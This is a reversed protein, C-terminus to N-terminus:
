TRATNYKGYSFLNYYCKIIKKNYNFLNVRLTNLIIMCTVFNILPDYIKKQTIDYLLKASIFKNRFSIILQHMDLDKTQVLDYISVPSKPYFIISPGFIFSMNLHKAIKHSFCLFSFLDEFSKKLNLYEDDFLPLPYLLVPQTSGFIQKMNVITYEYNTVVDCDAMKLPVLSGYDKKNFHRM